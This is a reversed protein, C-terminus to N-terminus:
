KSSYRLAKAINNGFTWCLGETGVVIMTKLFSSEIFGNLGPAPAANKRPLSSTLKM